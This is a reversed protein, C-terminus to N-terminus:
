ASPAAPRRAIDPRFSPRSSASPWSTFGPRIPATTPRSRNPKSRARPSPVADCCGIIREEELARAASELEFTEAKVRELTHFTAILPLSFEHKLRHGVTGSLWYNAHLVDPLGRCRFRAAVGDAFEDLHEALRDRELPEARGASVHHVTVGPEVAVRDRQTPDDRRTVIDVEHGL